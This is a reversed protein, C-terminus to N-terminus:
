QLSLWDTHFTGEKDIREYTHAGFYDRQAQIMNAWLRDSRYSDFYNLASGLAPTPVGLQAATTVVKRWNDQTNTLVDKFFPDLMLNALDGKRDFADKIADLLHARIICGARWITAIRGFDLAWDYRKAATAMLAFGQAYACIKSAYLADHLANIFDKNQGDFEAQPATLQKAAATREAKIASICRAFVAEAITPTPVGLEVASEISWGGTGKQAAKDLIMEVLPEATEPDKTALIDATIEILYSSLPGENWEAFTKHMQDAGAVLVNKMIYYVEAILQMDAYEIGNHVMKVFHGAGDNGIYACCPVSDAKASIATFIPEVHRYAEESGGPMISPGKLAGEEGGSIGTGIFLLGKEALDKCRRVTDTYHSNGGDIILDGKELFPLIEGIVMDVPKGAKVMLMVKRPRALAGIFDQVEYTPIINKTKTHDKIFDEIKQTTRNYVAVSFGKSAMNLALNRGMVALGWLGIDAKTM